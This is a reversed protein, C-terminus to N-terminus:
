NVYVQSVSDYVGIVKGDSDLEYSFAGPTPAGVSDTPTIKTGGHGLRCYRTYKSTNSVSRILKCTEATKEAASCDPDKEHGKFGGESCDYAIKCVGDSPHEAPSVDDATVTCYAATSGGCNQRSIGFAGVSSNLVNDWIYFTYYDDTVYTPGIHISFRTNEVDQAASLPDAGWGALIGANAFWYTGEEWGEPVPGNDPDDWGPPADYEAGCDRNLDISVAGGTTPDTGTMTAVQSAMATHTGSSGFLDDVDGSAGDAGGSAGGNITGPSSVSDGTSANEPDTETGSGSLGTDGSEDAGGGSTINGDKDAVAFGVRARVKPPNAELGLGARVEPDSKVIKIIAEALEGM